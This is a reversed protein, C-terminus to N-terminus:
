TNEKKRPRSRRLCKSARCRSKSAVTAYSDFRQVMQQWCINGAGSYLWRWALQKAYESLTIENVDRQTRQLRAVSVIWEKVTFNDYMLWRANYKHKVVSTACHVSYCNTLHYARLCFMAWLVYVLHWTWLGNNQTDVCYEKDSRIHWVLEWESVGFCTLESAPWAHCRSHRDFSVATEGDFASLFAVDVSPNWLGSHSNEICILGMHTFQCMWTSLAKM